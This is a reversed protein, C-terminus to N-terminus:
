HKSPQVLQPDTREVTQTEDQEGPTWLHVVFEGFPKIKRIWKCRNCLRIERTLRPFDVDHFPGITQKGQYSKFNDLTISNVVLRRTTQNIKAGILETNHLKAFASTHGDRLRSVNSDPAMSDQDFEKSPTNMSMPQSQRSDM